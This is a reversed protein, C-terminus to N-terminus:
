VLIKSDEVVTERAMAWKTGTFTSKIAAPTGRMTWQLATLINYEETAEKAVAWEWAMAQNERCPDHDKYVEDNSHAANWEALFEIKWM